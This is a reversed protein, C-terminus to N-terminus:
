KAGGGSKTRSRKVRASAQWGYWASDVDDRQYWSRKLSSREFMFPDIPLWKVAWKEFRERETLKKM